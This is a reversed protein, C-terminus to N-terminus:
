VGPLGLSSALYNILQEKTGGSPVGSQEAIVHSESDLVVLYPVTSGGMTRRFRSSPDFFVQGGVKSAYSRIAPMKDLGVVIKVGVESSLKYHERLVQVTGIAAKCAPCWPALYFVLCKQKGLCPDGYGINSELAVSDVKRGPFLKKGLFLSLLILILAIAYFAPTGISEFLGPAANKRAVQEARARDGSRSNDRQSRCQPCAGISDGIDKGCIYCQM